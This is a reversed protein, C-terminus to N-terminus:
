KFLNPLIQKLPQEEIYKDREFPLGKIKGELDSLATYGWESDQGSYVFGFFMKTEPDYETMYWTMHSFPHFYKAIVLAEGM